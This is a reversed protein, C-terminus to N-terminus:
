LPPFELLQTARSRYDGSRLTWLPDCAPM